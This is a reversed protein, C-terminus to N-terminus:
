LLGLPPADHLDADDACSRDPRGTQGGDDHPAECLVDDNQVAISLLCPPQDCVDLIAGHQRRSGLYPDAIVGVELARRQDHDRRAHVFLRPACDVPVIRSAPQPQEVGVDIDVLIHYRLEVGRRRLGQHESGGSGSASATRM